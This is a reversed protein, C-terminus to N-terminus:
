ATIFDVPSKGKTIRKLEKLVDVVSNYSVGLYLATEKTNLQALFRCELIERALQRKNSPFCNIISDIILNANKM